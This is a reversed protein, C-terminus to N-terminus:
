VMHPRLRPGPGAHVAGRRIPFGGRRLDAAAGKDRHFRGDGAGQRGASRGEDGSRGAGGGRQHPCQSGRDGASAEAGGGARPRHLGQCKGVAMLYGGAGAARPEAAGGSRLEAVPHRHHRRQEGTGTFNEGHAGNRQGDGSLGLYLHQRVLVAGAGGGAYGVARVAAADAAPGNARGTGGDAATGRRMGGDRGGAGGRGAPHHAPHLAGGNGVARGLLPHRVRRVPEAGAGAGPKRVPVARQGASLEM